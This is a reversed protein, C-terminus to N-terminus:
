VGCRERLEQLEARLEQVAKVLLPVLKGYDVQWPHVAPDDGGVQVAAPYVEALEQAIVGIQQKGPWAIFEFRRVRIADVLALVGPADEMGMKIRADSATGYVTATGTFTISGGVSAESSSYFREAIAGGGATSASYITGYQLGGAGAQCKLVVRADAGITAGGGIVFQGAGDVTLREAGGIADYLSLTRLGVVTRLLWSSVGAEALGVAPATGVALESSVKGNVVLAGTMTGGAKPMTAAFQGVIGNLYDHSLTVAGGIFPFSNQLVNKLGRIHDDGERKDDGGGPNTPVLAVIFKDAGVLNELAM